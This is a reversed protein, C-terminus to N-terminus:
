GAPWRGVPPRASAPLCAAGRVAEERQESSDPKIWGFRTLLIRDDTLPDVQDTQRHIPRKWVWKLLAQSHHEREWGITKASDLSCCIAIASISLARSVRSISPCCSEFMRDDQTVRPAAWSCHSLPRGAARGKCDALSTHSARQKM